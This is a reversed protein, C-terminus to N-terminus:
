RPASEPPTPSCPTRATGERGGGCCVSAPRLRLWCGSHRAIDGYPCRDFGTPLPPRGSDHQLPLRLSSRTGPGSARPMRTPDRKSSRRRGARQRHLPDSLSRDRSWGGRGPAGRSSVSFAVCPRRKRRYESRRIGLSTQRESRRTMEQTATEHHNVGRRRNHPQKRSKPAGHTYSLAQVSVTTPM